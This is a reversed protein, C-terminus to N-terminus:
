IEDEIGKLIQYAERNLIVACLENRQVEERMFKSIQGLIKMYENAANDPITLMFIINVPEGDISDYDIPEELTFMTASLENVCQNRGHPIALGRGIGTSMVEEREMVSQFFAVRDSIIGEQYILDIMQNLCDNKDTVKQKLRILNERFIKM